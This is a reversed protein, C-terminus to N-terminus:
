EIFSKGIIKGFKSRYQLSQEIELWVGVCMYCCTLNGVSIERCASLVDTKLYTIEQLEFARNPSVGPVSM